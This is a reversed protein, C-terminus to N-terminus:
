AENRGGCKRQKEKDWLQWFEYFLWVIHPYMGPSKAQGEKIHGYKSPTKM